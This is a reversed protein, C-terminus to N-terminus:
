DLAAEIAREISGYDNGTKNGNVLITPTATVKHLTRGENYISVVYEGIEESAICEDIRAQNVGAQRAIKSLESVSHEVFMQGATQQDHLSSLRQYEGVNYWETQKEFVVDMFRFYRNPAVCRSIATGQLDVANLLFSRTIIKVQGTDVYKEKIRPLVNNHFTACHNCTISAYEIIEIPANPDGMVMDYNIFGAEEQSSSMDSVAQEADAAVEEAMEKAEEATSSQALSADTAPENVESAMTENQAGDDGCSSLFVSFLMILAMKVFHGFNLRYLQKIM